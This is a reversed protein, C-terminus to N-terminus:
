QIKMALPIFTKSYATFDTLVYFHQNLWQGFHKCVAYKYCLKDMRDGENM